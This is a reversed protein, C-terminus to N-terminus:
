ILRSLKRIAPPSRLPAARHVLKPYSSFAPGLALPRYCPSFREARCCTTGERRSRNPQRLLILSGALDNNRAWHESLTGTGFRAFSVGADQPRELSFM